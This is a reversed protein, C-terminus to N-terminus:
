NLRLLLKGERKETSTTTTKTTRKNTQKNIELIIVQTITVYLSNILYDLINERKKFFIQIRILQTLVFVFM